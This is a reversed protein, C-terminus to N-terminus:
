RVVLGILRSFVYDLGGLFISMAVTVSVVIISLRTAERRTPWVVKRLEARTERLYRTVRNDGLVREM